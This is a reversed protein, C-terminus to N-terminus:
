SGKKRTKRSAELAKELRNVLAKYTKPLPKNLLPVDYDEVIKSADEQLEMSKKGKKEFDLIIKRINDEVEIPLRNSKSFSQNANKAVKRSSSGGPIRIKGSQDKMLDSLSPFANDAQKVPQDKLTEIFSGIAAIDDKDMSNLASEFASKQNPSLKVGAKMRTSIQDAVGPKLRKLNKSIYAIIRSSTGPDTLFASILVLPINGTLLGFGAAGTTLAQRAYTGVKQGSAYNVDELARVISIKEDIEPDIKKLDNIAKSDRKAERFLSNAVDDKLTGDRNFFKKQINQLDAKQKTFQADIKELEPIQDRFNNLEARLSKAISESARTKGSIRDFKALNALDSRMNLFEAPTLQEINGWNDIFRQLATIDAPERTLSLGSPKLTYKGTEPSLNVDFNQARLKDVLWNSPLEVVNDLERIPQYAAGTEALEDISQNVKTFLQNSLSSRNVGEKLAQEFAEPNRTILKLTDPTLGTAQATAFRAGSGAIDGTIKATRRAVRGTADIAEDVVPAVAKGARTAGKLGLKESVVELAGFAAEVDAAKVPDNEKLWEYAAINEQIFPSRLVPEVVKQFGKGIAEETKQPLLTKGAGIAVNGVAEAAFGLGQGLTQLVRRGVSQEGRAVRENSADMRERLTNFNQGVAQATEQIDQATEQLRSSVGPQEVPETTETQKDLYEKPLYQERLKLATEIDM